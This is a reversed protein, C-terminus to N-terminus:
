LLSYQLPISVASAGAAAFPGVVHDQHAATVSGRFRTGRVAARMNTVAVDPANCRESLHALVLHQLGAHAVSRALAGADPNSLHGTRCGIRAQLWRPYPGNRLMDLDHNSELVLLDLDVCASSVAESAHGMDYFIGARAGSASATAVFGVSETADHPTAVASLTMSAFQLSEGAAFTQVPAGSLGGATGRTAHLSWGWKKAAAAAGKIHDSHEHTLVCAQISQPAVDITKLRMALTRTGFGADVLVRSGNAELLVANGASGSGLMWIKV